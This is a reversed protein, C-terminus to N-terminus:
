AVSHAPMADKCGQMTPSDDLFEVDEENLMDIDIVCM